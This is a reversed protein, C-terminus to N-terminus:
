EGALFNKKSFIIKLYVNKLSLKKKWVHKIFM